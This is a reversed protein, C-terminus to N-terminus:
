YNRNFSLKNAAKEREQAKEIYKYKYMYIVMTFIFNIDKHQIKRQLYYM